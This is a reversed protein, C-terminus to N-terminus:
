GAGKAAARVLRRVVDRAGKAWREPLEGPPPFYPRAPITETGNNQYVAKPDADELVVTSGYGRGEISREMQGTERLRKHGDAAPAWPTGDPARRERFCTHAKVALVRAIENVALQPVAALGLLQAQVQALKGFDGTLSM